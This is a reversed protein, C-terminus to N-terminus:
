TRARARGAAVADISLSEIAWTESLSPVGAGYRSASSVELWCWAGKAGIPLRLNRGPGVFVGTRPMVPTEPTTSALLKINAGGLERAMVVIPRRFRAEFNGSPGALPGVLVKRYIPQNDDWAWDPNWKLVRGDETGILMVREAATDGDIVHVATPQIATYSNTGMEIPFWGGTRQSWFYHRLHTGGTGFPLVWVHLGNDRQNWTLEVRNVALNIDALDQEITDRTLWQLEGSASMVYVGGRSGFFYVRGEPDMCWPSGFAMGLKTTVVSMRGGAMPDGDLRQISNACGVFLLDDSWPVLAHIPDPVKGLGPVSQGSVAQTELVEPPDLDWDYADDFASMHWAYPSDATHALVMRSRWRCLLRARPPIIGLSTARWEVIEGNLHTSDGPMPRYVAYDQGDTFFVEGKMDDAMIYRSASNLVPSRGTSNAPSQTGATTFTYISGEAVGLNKIARSSVNPDATELLIDYGQIVGGTAASTLTIVNSGATFVTDTVKYDDPQYEPVTSPVAVARCDNNTNTPVGAVYVQHRVSTFLSGTPKVVKAADVAINSFATPAFFNGFQDLACRPYSFGPNNGAAALDTSNARVWGQATSWATGTEVLKRLWSGSAADGTSRRGISYVNGTIDVQVAFGIGGGHNADAAVTEDNTFLYATVVDYGNSRVLKFQAWAGATADRNTGVACIFATEGTTRVHMDHAWVNSSVAQYIKPAAEASNIAAVNITKWVQRDGIGPGDATNIQSYEVLLATSTAGATAVDSELVWLSDDVVYMGGVCSSVGPQIAWVFEMAKNDPALQYKWIYRSSAVSAFNSVWTTTGVYIAGTNKDVHMANVDMDSSSNRLEISGLEIGYRSYHVLRTNGAVAFFDDFLGSVICSITPNGTLSAAWIENPVPDASYSVHRAQYALGHLCQVKNGTTALTGSFYASTGPRTSGRLRGTTRDVPWVNFLDRSTGPPQDSLKQNRNLGLFPFDM